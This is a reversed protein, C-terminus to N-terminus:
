IVLENIGLAFSLLAFRGNKHRQHSATPSRVGAERVGLPRELWQAIRPRDLTDHRGETGRDAFYMKESVTFCFLALNQAFTATWWIQLGSQTKKLINLKVIDTM